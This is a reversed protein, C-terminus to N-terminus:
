YHSNIIASLIIGTAIGVLLYEGRDDRVWHYGRPPYRLDYRDYDRIVVYRSRYYPPLRDGRSWARYYPRYSPHSYYAQPPPGWYFRNNYYYGNYNRHDWAQRRHERRDGRRDDRWDRRDDRRDGRRDDRDYRDREHAAAPTSVALPTVVTAATAVALILKKM